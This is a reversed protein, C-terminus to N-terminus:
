GRIRAIAKRPRPRASPAVRGQAPKRRTDKMSARAARAATRPAVGGYRVQCRECFFSRRDTTGLYERTFPLQCRPCTKKNHALWHKRLVFAKKWELFEFSYLRAQKVLERLKRPPIKGVRSLPHVRIRFLVENKIINGVGAFVNQDLLADCVLTEPM